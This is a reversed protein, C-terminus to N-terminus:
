VVNYYEFSSSLTVVSNKKEKAMYLAKDASDVFSDMDMPKITSFTGVSITVKLPDSDIFFKFSETEMRIREALISATKDNVDPMIIAFEEGGWRCVVSEDTISQRLINSIQRLIKDGILHGYSDNIKKFNDIDIMLLSLPARRKEIKSFEESLKKYFFCRNKLGTLSDTYGRRYLKQIYRGLFLGIATWIICYAMIVLQYAINITFRYLLFNLIGFTLCAFGM